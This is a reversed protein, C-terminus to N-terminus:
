LDLVYKPLSQGLSLIMVDGNLMLYSAMKPASISNFVSWERRILKGSVQRGQEGLNKFLDSQSEVLIKLGLVVTPKISSQEPGITISVRM